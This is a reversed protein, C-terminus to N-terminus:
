QLVVTKGATEQSIHWMADYIEQTAAVLVNPKMIDFQGGTYSDRVIGGAETVLLTGGAIDWPKLFEIQYADIRGAAVYALTLVASGLARMGAVQTVIRFTRSILRSTIKPLFALSTEDAVICDQMLRKSSVHIPQGNLFAGGGLTASFMEDLIPNYCVGLVVKKRYCLAIGLAIMPIKHVFNATGDIPDIIWTPEDTLEALDTAM